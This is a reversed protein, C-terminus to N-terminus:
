GGRRPPETRHSRGGLNLWGGIRSFGRPLNEAYWSAIDEVAGVIPAAMGGSRGPESTYAPRPAPTTPAAASTPATNSPSNITAEDVRGTGGGPTPPPPPMHQRMYDQILEDENMAREVGNVTIKPLPVAQPGTSIKIRNEAWSRADSLIRHRDMISMGRETGAPIFHSRGGPMMLEHGIVDGRESRIPQVRQSASMSRIKDDETQQAVMQANQMMQSRLQVEHQKAVTAAQRRQLPDMGTRLMTLADKKQDDTLNEDDMIESQTNRMRQLRMEEGQTLQQQNLWSQTVAHHVMNDQQVQAHFTDRQSPLRSADFEYAHEDLQARQMALSAAHQQASQNLQQQRLASEREQGYASILTAAINPNTDPMWSIPM